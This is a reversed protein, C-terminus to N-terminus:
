SRQIHNTDNKKSRRHHHHAAKDTHTLKRVVSSFAGVFNKTTTSCQVHRYTCLFRSSFRLAFCSRWCRCFTRLVQKAAIEHQHQHRQLSKAGHTVWRIQKQLNQAFHKLVRFQPLLFLLLMPRRGSGRSQRRFQFQGGCFLCLFIAREVCFKGIAAKVCVCLWLLVLQLRYPGFVKVLFRPVWVPEIMLRLFRCPVVWRMDNNM